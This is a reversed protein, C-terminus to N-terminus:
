GTCRHIDWLEVSLGSILKVSKFPGGDNTLMLLLHPTAAPDGLSFVLLWFVVRTTSGTNNHISYPM